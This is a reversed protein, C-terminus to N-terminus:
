SFHYEVVRGLRDKQWVKRVTSLDISRWGHKQADWRKLIYDPMLRQDGKLADIAARPPRSAISWRRVGKATVNELGYFRGRADREVRAIIARVHAVNHTYHVETIM